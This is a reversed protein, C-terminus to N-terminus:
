YWYLMEDDVEALHYQSILDSYIHIIGLCLLQLGHGLVIHVIDNVSDCAFIAFINVLMICDSSNDVM